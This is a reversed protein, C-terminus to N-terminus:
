TGRKDPPALWDTGGLESFLRQISIEDFYGLIKISHGCEVPATHM